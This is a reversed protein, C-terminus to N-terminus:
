YIILISHVRSNLSLLATLSLIFRLNLIDLRWTKRTWEIEWLTITEWDRWEWRISNISSTWEAINYLSLILSSLSQSSSLSLYLCCLYFSQSSVSGIETETTETTEWDRQRRQRKTWRLWQNERDQWWIVDRFSSRWNITNSSFSSIVLSM